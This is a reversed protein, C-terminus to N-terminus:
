RVSQRNTTGVSWQATDRCPVLHPVGGGEGYLIADQGFRRGFSVAKEEPINLICLSPEPPWDGEDAVNEGPLIDVGLAAVAQKLAEHRAANEGDTLRKAGPNCATVVAYRTAGREALLRDMEQSPTGVRLDIAGEVTEVRYSTRLYPHEDPLVVDHTM